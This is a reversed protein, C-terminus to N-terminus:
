QSKQWVPLVAGYFKIMSDAYWKVWAKWCTKRHFGRQEAPLDEYLLEYKIRSANKGDLREWVLEGDFEKTITRKRAVMADFLRKDKDQGLYLEVRIGHRGICFGFRGRGKSAGIDWLGKAAVRDLLDFNRRALEEKLLGWFETLLASTETAVQNTAREEKEKEKTEIM